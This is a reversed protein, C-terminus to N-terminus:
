KLNDYHFNVSKLCNKQNITPNGVNRSLRSQRNSVVVDQTITISTTGNDNNNVNIRAAIRRRSAKITRKILTYFVFLLINTSILMLVSINALLALDVFILAPLLLSIILIIALIRHLRIKSFIVHHRPAKSIKIYRNFAILSIIFSTFVINVGDMYGHYRPKSKLGPNLFYSMIKTPLIIASFVTDALNLTLVLKDSNSLESNRKIYWLCYLATSNIISGILSLPVNFSIM